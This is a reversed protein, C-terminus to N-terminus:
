GSDRRSPFPNTDSTLFRRREGGLRSSVRWRPTQAAAVPQNRYREMDHQYMTPESQGLRNIDAIVTLNNLNYHAAFATAEWLQGEALEGDGTACARATACLDTLEIIRTLLGNGLDNVWASSRWSLVPDSAQAM